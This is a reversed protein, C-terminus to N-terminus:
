CDHDWLVYPHTASSNLVLLIEMEAWLDLKSKEWRINNLVLGHIYFLKIDMFCTLCEVVSSHWSADRKAKLRDGTSTTPHRTSRRTSSVTGVGPGHWLGAHGEEEENMEKQIQVRALSSDSVLYYKYIVCSFKWTNFDILIYVQKCTQDGSRSHCGTGVSPLLLREATECDKEPFWSIIM